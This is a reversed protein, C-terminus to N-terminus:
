LPAPQSIPHMKGYFVVLLGVIPDAQSISEDSWM